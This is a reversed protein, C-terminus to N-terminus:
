GWNGMEAAHYRQNSIFRKLDIILKGSGWRRRHFLMQGLFVKRKWNDSELGLRRKQLEQILYPKM